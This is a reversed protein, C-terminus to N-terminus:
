TPRADGAADSAPGLPTTPRPRRAISSRPRGAGALAAGQLRGACTSRCHDALEDLRPYRSAPVPEVVAAVAQGWRQDDVGVVLVDYVSPTRRSCPRSRRPSCRRAAPTPHLGVRSRVPARDRGRLHDCHRRDPGLGRRRDRRLDGGDERTRQLVRDPHSGVAGGSRARGLGARGPSPHSEDIVTTSPFPTFATNEGSHDASELRQAGQAGTESSGFGDSVIVGPLIGMLQERLAPSLPAGGSGISFLTSVDFPGDSAWADVLPRVM